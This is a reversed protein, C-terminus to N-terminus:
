ASPCTIHDFIPEFETEYNWKSVIQNQLGRRMSLNSYKQKLQNALVGVDTDNDITYIGNLEKKLEEFAPSSFCILPIGAALYDCIKNSAGVMAAENVDLPNSFLLLGVDARSAIKLMDRRRPIAGIFDFSINKKRSVKKRLYESYGRSHITEYGMIQIITQFNREALETFFSAPLRSPVITGFYTLHLSDSNATTLEVVDDKSPFNRVVLLKKILRVEENTLRSANPIITLNAKRFIEKRCWKLHRPFGKGPSDHEHYIIRFGIIKLLLGIPTSLPDSLYVVNPKYTLSYFLSWLLYTGYEFKTSLRTTWLPMNKVSRGPIADFIIRGTLENRRALFICEWGKEVSIKSGNELPPYGEPNTFQIYLIKKM